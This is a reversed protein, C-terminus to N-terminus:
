VVNAAISDISRALCPFPAVNELLWAFDLSTPNKMSCELIGSHPNFNQREGREPVPERIAGLQIESMISLINPIQATCRLTLQGNSYHFPQLTLSIESWQMGDDIEDDDDNKPRQRRATAKVQLFDLTLSFRPDHPDLIALFLPLGL